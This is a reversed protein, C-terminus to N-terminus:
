IEYDFERQASCEASPLVLGSIEHHGRAVAVFSVAPGPEM